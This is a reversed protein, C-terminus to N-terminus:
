QSPTEEPPEEPAVDSAPVAAQRPLNFVQFLKMATAKGSGDVEFSVSTEPHDVFYWRGRADPSSLQLTGQNPADIALRGNQVVVQLSIAGPPVSYYGLYPAYEAPADAPEGAPAAEPAAPKRPMSTTQLLRLATATGTSDTDFAVAVADTLVLHRLGEADPDKLEVVAQGPIDVALRQNQVLVKFATDKLPGITGVYTGVYPRFAEPVDIVDASFQARLTQIKQLVQDVCSATYDRLVRAAEGAKGQARLDGARMMVEYIGASFSRELQDFEARVVPNRVDWDATTVDCLDRALWWYSDAAFSDPKAEEPAVVQKGYTGARSAIAPLGGAHVFFPVYCSNSPRTPCWWFVPLEEAVAPLVAVCSSATVDLDLSPTTARDRAIRMMWKVDILGANSRLLAASRQARTVAKSTRDRIEPRDDGYARAFDFIQTSDARWWGRDSAYEVLDKSAVDWDTGISVTNSISTTGRPVRRAVWRTGATELVWAETPDAIIFSNDYAGEVGLTPTGSGFQGYTEVLRTIVEVAERATKGRELGLRVLDMGTPGLQPGDGEAHATINEALPKTWIGQNGIAVAYENIGEEYGWCWYPSSGLTAYTEVVQPIYLRGLDIQIGVAWKQRPYFMLPGSDFVARDSNKAFITTGDQTADPLAVWTDCASVAIPATLTVLALLALIILPKNTQM